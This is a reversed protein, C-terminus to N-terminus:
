ETVTVKFKKSDVEFTFFDGAKFTADEWVDRNFMNKKKIKKQFCFSSKKKQESDRGSGVKDAEVTFSDRPELESFVFDTKKLKKNNFSITLTDWRNKRKIQESTVKIEYVNNGDKTYSIDKTSTKDITYQGVGAWVLHRVQFDAPVPDDHSGDDSDDDSNSTSLINLKWKKEVNVESNNETLTLKGTVEIIQDSNVHKIKAHDDEFTISKNNNPEWKRKLFQSDKIKPFTLKKSSVNHTDTNDPIFKNGDKKLVLYKKELKDVFDQAKPIEVKHPSSLTKGTEKDTLFIKLKIDTQNRNKLKFNGDTIEVPDEDSPTIKVKVGNQDNPLKKEQGIFAEELKLATLQDKVEEMVKALDQSQASVGPRNTAKSKCATQLLLGCGGFVALIFPVLQKFKM